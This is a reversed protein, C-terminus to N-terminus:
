RVCKPSVRSHMERILTCCHDLRVYLRRNTRRSRRRWGVPLAVLHRICVHDGRGRIGGLPEAKRGTYCLM